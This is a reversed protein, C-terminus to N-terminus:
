DIEPNSSMKLLLSAETDRDGMCAIADGRSIDARMQKTRLSQGMFVQICDGGSKSISWPCTPTSCMPFNGKPDSASGILYQAFTQLQNLIRVVELKPFNVKKSLPPAKRLANEDVTVAVRIKSRSLSGPPRKLDV